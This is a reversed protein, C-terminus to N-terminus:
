PYRGKLNDRILRKQKREVLVLRGVGPIEVAKGTKLAAKMSELARKLGRKADRRTLGCREQIKKTLTEKTLKAMAQDTLISPTTGAGPVREGTLTQHFARIHRGFSPPDYDRDSALRNGCDRSKTYVLGTM